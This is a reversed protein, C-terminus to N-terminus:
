KRNQPRYKLSESFVIRGTQNRENRISVIWEDNQFTISDLSLRIPAPHLESDFIFARGRAEELSVRVPERTALTNQKAEAETLSGARLDSSTADLFPSHLHFAAIQQDNTAFRFAAYWETWMAAAQLPKQNRLVDSWFLGTAPDRVIIQVAHSTKGKVTATLERLAVEAPRPGSPSAIAAEGAARAGTRFADGATACCAIAVPAIIWLFRM